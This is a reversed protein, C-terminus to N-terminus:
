SCVFQRRDNCGPCFGGNSDDLTGRSDSTDFVLRHEVSPRPPQILQPRAAKIAGHTIIAPDNSYFSRKSSSSSSYFSAHSSISSSVTQPQPEPPPPAAVAATTSSSSHIAALGMIIEVWRRRM